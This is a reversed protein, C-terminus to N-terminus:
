SWYCVDEETLEVRQNGVLAFARDAYKLSVSRDAYVTQSGRGNEIDENHAMGVSKDDLNAM